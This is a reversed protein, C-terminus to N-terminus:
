CRSAAILLAAIVALTLRAAHAWQLVRVDHRPSTRIQLAEGAPPDGDNTEALAAQGGRAQELGGARTHDGAILLRESREASICAPEQREAHGEQHAAAVRFHRLTGVQDDQARPNREIRGQHHRGSRLADRDDTLQLQAPARHLRVGDRDGPGVALRRGGRERARQEGLLGTWHEHAAVDAHRERSVRERETGVAEDHTLHRAELEFRGLGEVRAHGRHEVHRRVMEISVAAERRVQVGLRSDEQVLRRGIARHEVGVVLRRRAQRPARPGADHQEAPAALELMPDEHVAVPHGRLEIAVDLADAGEALDEQAPRVVDLVYQGGRGARQPGADRGLGNAAADRAEAPHGMADLEDSIELAHM